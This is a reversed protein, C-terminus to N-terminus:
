PQENSIEGENWFKSKLIYRTRKRDGWGAMDSLNSLRDAFKLLVARRNNKLGPYTNPATHSVAQVLQAIDENFEDRLTDHTIWECDEITDHLWGAAILNPDDTIQRLIAATQAPHDIYPSGDSRTHDQHARLAYNQARQIINEYELYHKNM